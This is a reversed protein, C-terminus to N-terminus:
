QGSLTPDATGTTLLIRIFKASAREWVPFASPQGNQANRLRFHWVCDRSTLPQTMAFSWRGYEVAITSAYTNSQHASM